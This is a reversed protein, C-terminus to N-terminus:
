GAVAYRLVPKPHSLVREALGCAIVLASLADIRAGHRSKDLSLNGRADRQVTSDAIASALLLSEKVVIKRGLVLRQFALVDASGDAVGGSGQGRWVM